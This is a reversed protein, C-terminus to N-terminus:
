ISGGLNYNLKLQNLRKLLKRVKKAEKNYRQPLKISSTIGKTVEKIYMLKM